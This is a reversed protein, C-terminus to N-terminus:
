IMIPNFELLWNGLELYYGIVWIDIMLCFQFLNSYQTNSSIQNNTM